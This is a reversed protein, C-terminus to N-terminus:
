FAWQLMEWSPTATEKSPHAADCPDWKPIMPCQLSTTIPCETDPYRLGPFGFLVFFFLFVFFFDIFFLLM